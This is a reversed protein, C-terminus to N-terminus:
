VIDGVVVVRIRNKYLTRLFRSEFGCSRVLCALVRGISNDRGNLPGVRLQFVKVSRVLLIVENKLAVIFFFAVATVRM